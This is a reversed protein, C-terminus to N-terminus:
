SLNVGIPQPIDLLPTMDGRGAYKSLSPCPIDDDAILNYLHNQALSYSYSRFKSNEDHRYPHIRALFENVLMSAYFMNPTIVAPREVEVGKIYGESLRKDYENPDSKMLSEAELAESTIRGRSLLSSGDPIIYDIRGCINNIGTKGDADLRVGVDFFPILYFVAIRNLLHRGTVGDMCGFVVDCRSIVRIAEQTELRMPCSLAKTGLGIDKIAEAIVDTKYKGIDTIKSNLIRNLNKEEVTDPDVLILRGVGLRAFQEAVISGTGSCGVIGVSLSQILRTTGEGFAQMHRQTFEQLDINKDYNRKFIIDDGVITISKISNLSNGNRFYQGSFEEAYSIVVSAYEKGDGLSKLREQLFVNNEIPLRSVNLITGNINKTIIKEISEEYDIVKHVLLYFNEKTIYRGCICIVNKAPAKELLMQILDYQHSTMRLSVEM